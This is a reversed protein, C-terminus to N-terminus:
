NSENENQEALAALNAIEEEKQMVLSIIQKRNAVGSVDINMEKCVEKLEDANLRDLERQRKNMDKKIQAATKAEFESYLDPYSKIMNLGAERNPITFPEFPVVDFHQPEKLGHKKGLLISHAKNAVLVIGGDSM